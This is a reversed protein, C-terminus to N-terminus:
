SEHIAESYEQVEVAEAGEGVGPQIEFYQTFGARLFESDNVVTLRINM